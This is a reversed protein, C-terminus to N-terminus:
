CPACYYQLRYCSSVTENPTETRSDGLSVHCSLISLMHRLKNAILFNENRMETITFLDWRFAGDADEQFCKLICCAIFRNHFMDPVFYQNQLMGCSIFAPSCDSECVIYTCHLWRNMAVARGCLANIQCLVCVVVIHVDVYPMM